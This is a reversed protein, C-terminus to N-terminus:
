ITFPAHSVRYFGGFIHEQWYNRYPFQIKSGSLGPPGFYVTCENFLEDLAACDQVTIQGSGALVAPHFAQQFDASEWKGLIVNPDSGNRQMVPQSHHAPIM